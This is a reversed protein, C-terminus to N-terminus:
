KNETLSILKKALNEDTVCVVKVEERGLAKGLEDKSFEKIVHINKALCYNTIKKESNYSLEKSFIFLFIKRKNIIGLCNNYGEIVNGSKKALSLFRLFDNM